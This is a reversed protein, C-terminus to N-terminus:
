TLDALVRPLAEGAMQTWGGRAGGFAQKQDSRFGRQELILRTGHKTEELTFSVVTDVGLARWTYSLFQPEQAELVECDVIGDWFETPERKFQFELGAALPLETKMLWRALLEPETLARWVRRPPHTLDFQLTLTNSNSKM